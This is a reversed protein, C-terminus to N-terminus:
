TFIIVLINGIQSTEWCAQRLLMQNFGGIISQLHKVSSEACKGINYCATKIPLSHKLARLSGSFKQLFVSLEQWYNDSDFRGFVIDKDNASIPKSFCVLEQFYGYM